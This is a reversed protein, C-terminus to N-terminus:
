LVQPDGVHKPNSLLFARLALRAVAARSLGLETAAADLQDDLRAPMPVNLFRRERKTTESVM